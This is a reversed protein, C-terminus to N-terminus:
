TQSKTGWLVTARWAGRDMLNGLCSYWLPNSNGELIQSSISCSFCGFESFLLFILVFIKSFLKVTKVLTVSRCLKHNLSKVEPYISLSLFAHFSWTSTNVATRMCCFGHLLSFSYVIAVFLM